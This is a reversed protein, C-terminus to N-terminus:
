RRARAQCGRCRCGLAGCRHLREGVIRQRQDLRRGDIRQFRADVAARDRRLLHQDDLAPLIAIRERHHRPELQLIIQQTCVAGAPLPPQPRFINRRDAEALEVRPEGAWAFNLSGRGSLGERIGLPDDEREGVVVGIRAGRGAGHLAKEIGRRDVHPAFREDRDRVVSRIM